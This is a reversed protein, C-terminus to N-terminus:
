FYKGYHKGVTDESFVLAKSDYMSNEIAFRLKQRDFPFDNIKWTGKMVCQLKMLLYIRGDELTDVTAYSKEVSKAMPVELNKMFDFDRNKYKLWLWLNVSYEKQRFDIDHISTIYLGVNVTDPTSIEEAKLLLSSFNLILLLSVFFTIIKM